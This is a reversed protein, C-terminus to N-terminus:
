TEVSKVKSSVLKDKLAHAHEWPGLESPLPFGSVGDREATFEQDSLPLASRLIDTQKM